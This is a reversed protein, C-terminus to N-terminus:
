LLNQSKEESEYSPESNAMVYNKNKATEVHGYYNHMSQALENLTWNELKDGNIKQKALYQLYDSVKYGYDM